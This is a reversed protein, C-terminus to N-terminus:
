LIQLNYRFTNKYMYVHLDRHYSVYVTCRTTTKWALWKSQNMFVIRYVLWFLLLSFSLSFDWLAFVCYSALSLCHVHSTRGTAAASSHQLTDVEPSSSVDSGAAVIVDCFRFYFTLFSLMVAALLAVFSVGVMLYSNRTIILVPIM